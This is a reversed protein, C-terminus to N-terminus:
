IITETIGFDIKRDDVSLTYACDSYKNTDNGNNGEEDGRDNTEMRIKQLAQRTVKAMYVALALLSVCAIVTTVNQWKNGGTMQGTAASGVFAVAFTNWAEVIVLSTIFPAPPAELLALGYNKIAVPVLAARLLFCIRYPETQVVIGIARIIENSGLHTTCCRQCTTQGLAYSATCGIIKGTYAICFGPGFGYIYYVILEIPTVPALCIICIAIILISAFSITWPYSQHMEMMTSRLNQILNDDLNSTRIIITIVIVLLLAFFLLFIQFRRQQMMKPFISSSSSPPPSYISSSPSSSLSQFSSLNSFHQQNGRKEAETKRHMNRVTESTISFPLPSPSGQKM